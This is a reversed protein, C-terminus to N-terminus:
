RLPAVAHMTDFHIVADFQRALSAQFYHSAGPRPACEGASVPAADPVPQCLDTGSMCKDENLM